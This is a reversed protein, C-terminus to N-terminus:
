WWQGWRYGILGAAALAATWGLTDGPWMVLSYIYACILALSLLCLALGQLVLLAM